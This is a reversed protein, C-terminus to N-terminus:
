FFSLSRLDPLDAHHGPGYRPYNYQRHAGRHDAPNMHRRRAMHGQEGWTSGLGNDHPSPTVEGVGPNRDSFPVSFHQRPTSNTTAATSESPTISGSSPGSGERANLKQALRRGSPLLRINPLVQKVIDWLVSQMDPPANELQDGDTSPKCAPLASVATQVVYNAYGDRLLREMEEKSVFLEEVLRRKWYVDAVRISKEVVNSSFKQKSLEVVSGLFANCLPGTYEHMDHDLIYQVVYNGFQDQMLNFAQAIIQNVLRKQQAGHAHDICRQLVCCGHRHSGVALANLGVAQFIFDSDAPSLHNLCKQIVHNGNLDQILGVVDASLADIIAATQEPGQVAEIMKQLARTGHQNKAIQIMYPGAKNVLVTRQEHTCHELLKQCLYNGFSDQMLQVIHDQVEALIIPVNKDRDEDIKKQLFRCGHQDKSVSFIQGRLTELDANAFRNHDRGSESATLFRPVCCPCVGDIQARRNQMVLQQNDRGRGAYQPVFNQYGYYPPQPVPWQGPVVGQPVSPPNYGYPQYGQPGGMVPQAVPQYANAALPGAMPMSQPIAPGILEPRRPIAPADVLNLAPDPIRGISLRRDGSLERRHTAGLPIRGIMANHNHLHQEAHTLGVNANGVTPIDNTSFSSRLGPMPANQQPAIPLAPQGSSALTGALSIEMSRRNDNAHAPGDYISSNRSHSSGAFDHEDGRLTNLPLSQQGQRHRYHTPWSSKQPTPAQGSMSTALEGSRQTPYSLENALNARLVSNGDISTSHRHSPLPFDDDDLLSNISNINSIGLVSAVDPLTSMGRYDFNTVPM